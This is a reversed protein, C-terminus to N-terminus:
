NNDDLYIRNRDEFYSKLNTLQPPNLPTKLYYTSNNETIIKMNEEDFEVIPSTLYLGGRELYVTLHVTHNDREERFMPETYKDSVEVFSIFGTTINKTSLFWKEWSTGRWYASM